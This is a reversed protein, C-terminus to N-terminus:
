ACLNYYPQLICAAIFPREELPSPDPHQSLHPLSSPRLLGQLESALPRGARDRVGLEWLKRITRWMPVLCLPRNSTTSPSCAGRRKRGHTMFKSWPSTLVSLLLLLSSSLGPGTWKQKSSYPTSRLGVSRVSDDGSLALSRIPPSSFIGCPSEFTSLSKPLDSTSGGMPPGRQPWYLRKFQM